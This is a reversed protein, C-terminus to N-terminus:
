NVVAVVREVTWFLGVAAILLSLCQAWLAVPYRKFLFYAPVFLVCLILIQGTEVGLNFFLLSSLLDGTIGMERLIYSFGFGHLLGFAATVITRNKLQDPHLQVGNNRRLYRFSELAMYVVSLAILIEVFRAAPTYVNLVSVGLTISHAITFTTILVLLYTFKMPVLILAALFLLHDFGLLIHEVGVPYYALGSFISTSFGQSAKASSEEASSSARLRQEALYQEVAEVDVQLTQNQRTFTFSRSSDLLSIRTLNKHSPDSQFLLNYTITLARVDEHCVFDLEFQESNISELTKTGLLTPDCQGKGSRIVFGQKVADMVTNAPPQQSQGAILIDARHDKPVTYVLKVRDKLVSIGTDTVGAEHGHAPQTGALCWGIIISLLYPYHIKM